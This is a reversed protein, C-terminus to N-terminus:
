YPLEDENADEETEDEETEEDEDPVIYKVAQKVAPKTKKASAKKTRGLIADVDLGELNIRFTTVFDCGKDKSPDPEFIYASFRNGALYAAAILQAMEERTYENGHEDKCVYGEGFLMFSISGVAKGKQNQLIYGKGISVMNSAVAAKRAFSKKNFKLTNFM